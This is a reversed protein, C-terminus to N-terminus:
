DTSFRVVTYLAAAQRAPKQSRHTVLYKYTHLALSTGVVIRV